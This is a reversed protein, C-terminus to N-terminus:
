HLAPAPGGAGMPQTLGTEAGALRGNGGANGPAGALRRVNGGDGGSEVEARQVELEKMRLDYQKLLVDINKLLGANREKLSSLISTFIAVQRDQADGAVTERMAAIEAEIKAISASNNRVEEQMEVVWHMHQMQLESQKSQLRLKEIQLKPDEPIGTAKVGPYLKEANPIKMAKLFTREVEDPDYGPTTSASAKLLQAQQMAMQDSSINPDAAPAVDDPNGLYDERLVIQGQGFGKRFQTYLANLVYDKKFEDKMCRWVRKFIATYVRQGEQVMTRMTEATTNQGPNEGVMPDTTGSIREVYSILLTLLQFLVASPERVPLPVLSKNLDEGTSDVRQWQFPAFTYTGGRIKAGRGLFGGASISMTGADIIQNILSNTSENLPGLLVGFGEDYIGGDPSPIFGYKTFYEMRHICIVRGALTKEIDVERDFGTVIRLVCRSQEDVTIIYPEAYGDKDLDLDVHQELFLYPTTEDPDPPYQGIRNDRRASNQDATQPAPPQGYWAEKSVDRFIQRQIGAHIQNRFYPILHTKRPCTELSKAWYDVVLDQALVTEDVKRGKDADYYSKVFTTGVIPLNILLRDKQEEWEQQEELCQWSMHNSIRAARDTKEGTPDPGIVRCKVVDTGSIISPYARSHFQLAAITVLPFAVNSCNPWPFNKDKQVQMALDMAAQTRREWKYRSQRDRLYGAHIHEGLKRLDDEDLRDTLNPAQIADKNLTIKRSLELM